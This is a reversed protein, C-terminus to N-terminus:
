VKAFSEPRSAQTSQDSQAAPCRVAREVQSLGNEAFRVGAVPATQPNRAIGEGGQRVWGMRDGSRRQSAIRRVQLPDFKALVSSRAGADGTDFLFEVGARDSALERAPAGARVPTSKKGERLDYSLAFRKRQLILKRSPPPMM